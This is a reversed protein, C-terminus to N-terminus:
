HKTYLCSTREQQEQDDIMMSNSTRVFSNACHIPM